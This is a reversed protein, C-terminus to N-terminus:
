SKKILKYIQKRLTWVIALIALIVGILATNAIGNIGFSPLNVTHRLYIGFLAWVIVAGYYTDKQRITTLVGILITIVLIITTM